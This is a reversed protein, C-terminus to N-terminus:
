FIYPHATRLPLTQRPSTHIYWLWGGRHHCSPVCLHSLGPADSALQNSPSDDSHERPCLYYVRVDFLPPTPYELLLLVDLVYLHGLARDVLQHKCNETVPGHGCDAERDYLVPDRPPVTPIATCRVSSPLSRKRWLRLAPGKDVFHRLTSSQDHTSLM